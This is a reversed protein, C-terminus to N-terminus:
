GGDGDGYKAYIRFWELGIYRIRDSFTKGLQISYTKGRGREGNIRVLGFKELKPLVISLLTTYDSGIIEKLNSSNITKVELLQKMFRHACQFQKSNSDEPFFLQMFEWVGLKRQEDVRRLLEDKVYLSDNSRRM